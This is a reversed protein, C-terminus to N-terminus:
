RTPLSDIRAFWIIDQNIIVLVGCSAGSIKEFSNIVKVTAWLLCFYYLALSNLVLQALTIEGSKLNALGEM